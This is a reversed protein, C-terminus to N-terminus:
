TVAVQQLASIELLYELIHEGNIFGGSKAYSYEKGDHEKVTLFFTYGSILDIDEDTLIDLILKSIYSARGSKQIDYLKNENAMKLM